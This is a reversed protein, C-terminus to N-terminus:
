SAKYLLNRVKGEFRNQTVGDSIFTEEKEFFFYPGRYQSDAAVATYSAGSSTTRVFTITTPTVTLKYSNYTGAVIAPSTATDLATYSSGVPTKGIGIEGNQRQYVRYYGRQGPPHGVPNMAPDAPWDFTDADTAAGFLLGLKASTANDALSNWKMEWTITYSTPNSMPCQWGILVSPRGIGRGPSGLEGFAAPIILGEESAECRGRAAGASSSVQYDDTRYTLQGTGPVRQEWPDTEKRYDRTGFGPDLSGNAGRAYAPDQHMAGRIGLAKIRAFQSHRSIGRMLVQLGANKYTTFVSDAYRESLWVWQVGAAQLEAVTYPLATTNVTAPIPSVMVPTIGNNVVTSVNSVSQVGIMTWAQACQEQVAKIPGILAQDEPSVAPDVPVCDLFAVAKGDIRRLMQSVTQHYYPQALWGYWGGRRDGRQALTIADGWNHARPDDRDGAYNYAATIAAASLQRANQSVYLSTRGASVLHDSYDTVVGVDDSSTCTHFHVIDFKESLCYDVQYPSSYPGRLAALETAGIVLPAAPLSEVGRVCAQPAPGGGGGTVMLGQDSGFFATQGSDRSLKLMIRSSGSDWTLGPGLSNALCAAIAACGTKGGVDLSLKWPNILPTGTGVLKLPAEVTLECSCTGGCGCRGAM